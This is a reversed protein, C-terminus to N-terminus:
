TRPLVLHASCDSCENMARQVIYKFSLVRKFNNSSWEFQQVKSFLIFEDSFRGNPKERPLCNGGKPRRSGAGGGSAWEGWAQKGEGEGM